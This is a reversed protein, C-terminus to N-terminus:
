AWGKRGRYSPSVLSGEAWHNPAMPRSQSWKEGDGRVASLAAQARTRLVSLCQQAPMEKETNWNEGRYFLPVGPLRWLEPGESSCGLVQRKLTDSRSPAM